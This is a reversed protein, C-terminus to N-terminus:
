GPPTTTARAPPTLSRIFVGSNDNQRTLTFQLRLTFDPPTPIDCWALGLGDGPLTALAGDVLAFDGRGAMRWRSRDVGDFLTIFGAPAAWPTADPANGVDTLHEALRRALAVGTLMPNPSGVRPFLSPGAAYTNAVAHLKADPNTASSAPDTGMRLTGAEHHTSGLGDRRNAAPLVTSARGGAPIPRWGAGTLVDYGGGGAFALATDEASADMADWLERMAPTTGLEVYARPDGYEDREPDLRVFSTPNDPDTEGIGRLTLVVHTDRAAAFQQYTDLDPIKRWM